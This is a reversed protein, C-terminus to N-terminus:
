EEGLEIRDNKDWYDISHGMSNEYNIMVIEAGIKQLELLDKLLEEKDTFVMDIDNKIERKVENIVMDINGLMLAGNDYVKNM